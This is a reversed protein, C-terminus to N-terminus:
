RFEFREAVIRIEDGSQMEVVFVSGSEARVTNISVSEGWPARHPILAESVGHWIIQHEVAPSGVTLVSAICLHQSWDLRLQRLTADHLPM